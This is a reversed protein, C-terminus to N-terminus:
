VRGFSPGFSYGFNESSAGFNHIYEGNLSIPFPGNYLPFSDLTYTVNGDVILLQYDNVLVGDKTRTNGHNSDPVNTTTLNDPNAISMGSLTFGSSVHENWTSDLHLQELFLLPDRNSFQLEDLIYQGFYASATHKPNLKYSFQEAFGEPTYDVDF